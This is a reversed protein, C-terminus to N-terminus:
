AKSVGFVEKKLKLIRPHRCENDFEDVPLVHAEGVTKIVIAGILRGHTSHKVIKGMRWRDDVKLLVWQGVPFFSKVIEAKDIEMMFSWYKDALDVTSIPYLLCDNFEIFRVIICNEHVTRGYTYGEVIGPRMDYLDDRYALVLTGPSLVGSVEQENWLSPSFNDKTTRAM